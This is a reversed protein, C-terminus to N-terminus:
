LTEPEFPEEETEARDKMGEQAIMGNMMTVLWCLAEINDYGQIPNANAFNKLVGMMSALEQKSVLVYEENNM